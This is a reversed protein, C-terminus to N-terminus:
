EGGGDTFYADLAEFHCVTCGPAKPNHVYNHGKPCILRTM